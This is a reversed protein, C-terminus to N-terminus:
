RDPPHNPIAQLPSNARKMHLKISLNRIQMSADNIGTVEWGMIVSGIAFDNPDPSKKLYGKKRALAIAERFLSSLDNHSFTVWEGDHLSQQAFSKTPPAYIMKASPDATDMSAHLDCFKAREDYMAVNFWIMDGFGPSKRNRDQVTFTLLFQATHLEKQYGEPRQGENKLLLAEIKFEIRDIDKLMHIAVEQQALLHPWPQGNKRVKGGYEPRSDISLILDGNKNGSSIIVAKAENALRHTQADPMEPKADSLNFKSNWQCLSWTPKGRAFRPQTLGTAVKRGPAPALINFGNQFQPDCLLDVAAPAAAAPAAAPAGGFVMPALVVGAALTGALVAGAAIKTM